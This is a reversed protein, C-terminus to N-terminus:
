APGWPGSKLAQRPRKTEPKFNERVALRCQLRHKVEAWKAFAKHWEIAEPSDPDFPRPMAPRAAQHDQMQQDLTPKM